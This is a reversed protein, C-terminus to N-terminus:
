AIAQGRHHMLVNDQMKMLLGRYTPMGTSSKSVVSEEQRLQSLKEIAGDSYMDSWLMEYAMAMSNWRQHLDASDLANREYKAVLSWLSVVAALLTLLPKIWGLAPPVM